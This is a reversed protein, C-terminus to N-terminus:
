QIEIYNELMERIFSYYDPDPYLRAQRFMTNDYIPIISSCCIDTYRDGEYYSLIKVIISDTLEPFILEQFEIKDELHYEQEFKNNKDIIKLERIRRNNKYLHPRSFDVFGNLILIGEVNNQFTIEMEFIDMQEKTIALPLTKPWYDYPFGADTRYFRRLFNQPSYELNNERLYVNSRISDIFINPFPNYGFRDELNDTSTSFRGNSMFVFLQRPALILYHLEERVVFSPSTESNKCDIM